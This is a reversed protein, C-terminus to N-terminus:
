EATGGKKYIISDCIDGTDSLSSSEHGSVTIDFDMRRDPEFAVNQRCQRLTGKLGPVSREALIVLM